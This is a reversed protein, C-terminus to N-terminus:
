IEYEVSNIVLCDESKFYVDMDEFEGWEGIYVRNPKKSLRFLILSLDKNYENVDVATDGGLGGNDVSIIEAYQSGDPSDVTKVVTNSGFNCFLLCMGSVFFTFVFLLIFTVAMLIISKKGKQHKLAVIFCCVSVLLSCIMATLTPYNFVYIVTSILAIVPSLSCLRIATSTKTCDKFVFCLVVTTISIVVGGVSYVTPYTVDFKYGIISCLILFVPYLVIFGFLVYISITTILSKKDKRECTLLKKM